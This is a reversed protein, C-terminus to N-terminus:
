YGLIIQMYGIYSRFNLYTIKFFLKNKNKDFEMYQLTNVVRFLDSQGPTRALESM